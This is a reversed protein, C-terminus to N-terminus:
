RQKRIKEHSFYSGFAISNGTCYDAIERELINWYEMNGFTYIDDYLPLLDPHYERIYNMIRPRYAGRLNLNEFYFKRTYTKCAGLIAKFDTIGPFM